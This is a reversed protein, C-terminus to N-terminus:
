RYHFEGFLINRRLINADVAAGMDAVVAGIRRDHHGGAREVFRHGRELVRVALAVAERHRVLWHDHFGDGDLRDAHGLPHLIRRDLTGAVGLRGSDVARCDEGAAVEMLGGDEVAVGELGAVPDFARGNDPFRSGRSDDLVAPGRRRRREVMEHQLANHRQVAAHRDARLGIRHHQLHEVVQEHRDGFLHARHQLVGAIRDVDLLPQIEGAGDEPRGAVQDGVRRVHRDMEAAHAFADPLDDAAAGAGHPGALDVDEVRGIGAAGM